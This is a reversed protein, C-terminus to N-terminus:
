GGVGLVGGILVRQMGKWNGSICGTGLIDSYGNDPVYVKRRIKVNDVKEGVAHYKKFGLCTVTVTVYEM